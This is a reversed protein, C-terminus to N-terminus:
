IMGCSRSSTWGSSGTPGSPGRGGSISRADSGTGLSMLERWLHMDAHVSTRTCRRAGGRGRLGRGAPSRRSETRTQRPTAGKRQIRFTPHVLCRGICQSSPTSRRGTASRDALTLASKPSSRRGSSPAGQDARTLNSNPRPRQRQPCWAPCTTGEILCVLPM